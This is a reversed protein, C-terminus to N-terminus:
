DSTIKESLPPSEKKIIISGGEKNTTISIVGGFTLILATLSILTISAILSITIPGNRNRAM